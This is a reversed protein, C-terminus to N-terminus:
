AGAASRSAAAAQPNRIPRQPIHPPESPRGRLGRGRRGVRGAGGAKSQIPQSDTPRFPGAGNMRAPSAWRPHADAASVELLPNSPRLASNPSQATQERAAAEEDADAPCPGHITIATSRRLRARWHARTPRRVVLLPIRLHQLSANPPRHLDSARAALISAFAEGASM